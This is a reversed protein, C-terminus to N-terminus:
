VEKTRQPSKQKTKLDGNKGRTGSFINVIARVSIHMAPVSPNFPFKLLTM